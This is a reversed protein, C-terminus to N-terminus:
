MVLMPPLLDVWNFLKALSIHVQHIFLLIQNDAICMAPFSLVLASLLDHVHLKESLCSHNILLLLLKIIIKNIQIACIDIWLIKM